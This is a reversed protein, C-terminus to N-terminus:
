LQKSGDRSSPNYKTGAKRDKKNWSERELVDQVDKKLQRVTEINLKLDDSEMKMCYSEWKYWLEQVDISHLRMISQLEAEVDADLPKGEAAFRENLQHSETQETM